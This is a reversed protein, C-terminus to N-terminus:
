LPLFHSRKKLCACCFVWVFVTIKFLFHWSDFGKRKLVVNNFFRSWVLGSWIWQWGYVWIYLPASNCRLLVNLLSLGTDLIELTWYYFLYSYEDDRWKRSEGAALMIITVMNQGYDVILVYRTKLWITPSPLWATKSQKLFFSKENKENCCYPYFLITGM